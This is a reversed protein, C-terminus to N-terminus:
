YTIGGGVDETIFVAQFPMPGEITQIARLETKEPYHVRNRTKAAMM